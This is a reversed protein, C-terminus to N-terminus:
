PKVAPDLEVLIRPSGGIPSTGDPQKGDPTAAGLNTAAPLDITYVGNVPTITQSTGDPQILLASSSTATLIVTDATYYRTWLTVVRQGTAPQKFAIIEQNGSIWNTATLTRRDRWYPQIGTLYQGAVKFTTYASRPTGDRATCPGSPPNRILGFADYKCDNGADDYLQFWVIKEANLWDAYAVTQIVFDAQETMSARYASPCFEYPPDDCVPVGTETLWLNVTNFGRANLRARDEYLYGFTQWAWSYNHSAVADMFGHYTTSLPDTAIVNLVDNLWTPKEFHALGGFVITTASDAQKAALYAVKQIRAFDAPTGSFFYALDEENWIEWHRVGKDANWGQQQALVGGPMYRNVATHVFYAWRNGPNITKGPGPDDTGDSFVSLYLGQPPTSQSSPVSPLSQSRDQLRLRLGDGVKPPAVLVSGGTDLGIPTLMLIPLISLDHNTDAIINADQKSWDFVRPHNIPDTEINPWYMPWRNLTGSIARARQYRTENAPSEASSVFALGQTTTTTVIPQPAAYSRNILPLFMPQLRDVAIVTVSFTAPAGFTTSPEATVNLYATYVGTQTIPNTDVNVTLTVSATGTLTGSLASMVIPQFSDAPSITLTWTLITDPQTNSLRLTGTQITPTAVESLFVFRDPQVALAPITAYRKPMNKLAAYALAPSLQHPDDETAHYLSYFRQPNCPAARYFLDLNWVFMPGMWPWNADAYAYARVLYDAQQQESVRMWLFGKMEPQSNCWGYSSLNGAGDIWPDNSPDRIWGFETAWEPMDTAGAAVMVDHIREAARFAFGNPANHYETEPTFAFGHPHYGFADICFRGLNVAKMRDLTRRTFVTEDMVRDWYQSSTPGIPALGASIVLAHPDVSKIVPYVACVLDAYAEPNVNQSGWFGQGRLNPENGIEYAQVKGLGAQALDHIHQLYATLDAPYGDVFVRYLVKYPLSTTPPPGAEEFLKIWDFGLGAALQPQDWVNLGYGLHPAPLTATIQATLLTAPRGVASRSLQVGSFIIVLSFLVTIFVGSVRLIKM